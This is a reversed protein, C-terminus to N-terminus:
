VTYWLFKVSGLLDTNMIPKISYATYSLVSAVKFGVHPPSFNLTSMVFPFKFMQQDDPNYSM